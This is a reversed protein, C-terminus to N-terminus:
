PGALREVTVEVDDSPDDRHYAASVVTGITYVTSGPEEPAALDALCQATGTGPGGTVVATCLACRGRSRGTGTSSRSRHRPSTARGAGPEDDAETVSTSLTVPVTAPEETTTVPETPGTWTVTADEPVVTVDFTKVIEIGSPGPENMTVTATHPGPPLETVAGSVTWTARGPRVDDESIEDPTLSLGGIGTLDASLEAGDAVPSEATM